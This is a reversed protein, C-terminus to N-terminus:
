DSALASTMDTQAFDKGKFLLPQNLSKALAYAACDGFNLRAPHGRRGYREYAQRAVLSQGADFPVVQIGASSLVEDLGDLASQDRGNALVIGAELVTVASIYRATADAISTAFLDAEPERLLIAMLASADIVMLTDWWAKWKTM